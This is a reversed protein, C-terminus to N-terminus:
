FDLEDATEVVTKLAEFISNTAVRLVRADIAALKIDLSAGDSAFSVSLEEPRLLPDPALARAAIDALRASEFPVHLHLTHDM